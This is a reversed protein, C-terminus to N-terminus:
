SRQVASNNLPGTPSVFFPRASASPLAPLKGEERKCPPGSMYLRRINCLPPNLNRVVRFLSPLPSILSRFILVRVSLVRGAVPGVFLFEEDDVSFGLVLAGVLAPLPFGAVPFGDKPFGSLFRVTDPRGAVPLSGATFCSLDNPGPPALGTRVASTGLSVSKKDPRFGTISASRLPRGILLIYM